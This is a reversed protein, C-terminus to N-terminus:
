RTWSRDGSIAAAAVRRGRATWALAGTRRLAEPGIFECPGESVVDPVNTVVVAGPRCVDALAALGRKGPLHVIEGGGPLPASWPSGPRRASAVERGARDGDNELWLRAAFGEGRERSLARGEETMAGILGGGEAVLIAPRESGAWVALAAAVPALGALRGPGRWLCLLLGGAAIAPLIGPPPAPVGLAAGEWGSVTEAVWLIWDIGLGMPILAAMELGLPALLAAMAAAPMVILAMVPVSAMNAVLGYSSWINFHAAAFPATALGAVASSFATAGLFRVWGPAKTRRGRVAGFAAVLATTAAFSMQFGPGTLAEPRLTLVVIAAVAVARLTIARRDLLVAGLAVAAMVFARETAVTQGALLYYGGAAGLACLAAIRRAPMRLSVAPFLALALRVAGFVTGTLLGMHLGSIALLHALNTARLADQVEPSLATRDGVMLAAAVAGTQGPLRDRVASAIARRARFVPMAGEPAGLAVPPARAYGVAGIGEFWAKRRFDFGGPEVPGGPPSLHGTVALPLGPRLETGGEGHFAIRVRSPTRRPAVDELRVDELTVRERGSASRDIAVVRGEVPGYYRFGLVPASVLASRAGALLMGGALLALVWGSAPARRSWLLGLLAALATAAYATFTPEVPLAFWLGIGTGLLVAAWPLRHGRQAELWAGLRLRRATGAQLGLDAM